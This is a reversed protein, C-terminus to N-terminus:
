SMAPECACAFARAEAPYRVASSSRAICSPSSPRARAMVSPVSCAPGCSSSTCPASSCASMASTPGSSPPLSLAPRLRLSWIAVSTRIYRSSWERVIARSMRRTTSASTACASACGSATMGPRVCRCCACGTSSAWWRCACAHGSTRSRSRKRSQDTRADTEGYPPPASAPDVSPSSGCSTARSSPRARGASFESSPVEARSTTASNANMVAIIATSMERKASSIMRQFVRSNPNTVSSSPYEVPDLMMGCFFFGSMASSARPLAPRRM